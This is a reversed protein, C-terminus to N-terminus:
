AADVASELRPFLPPAAAIGDCPTLRGYEVQEWGLELPQGLADLIKPATEPLYAALAVACVRLGDALDYLVQDVRAANAEDKVLEWPKQETVYRNLSRVFSWVRDIAGTLDFADVAAPVQNRLADIEDALERPGFRRSELAVQPEM